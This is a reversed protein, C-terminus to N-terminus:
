LVKEMMISLLYYRLPHQRQKWMILLKMMLFIHADLPKLNYTTTTKKVLLM